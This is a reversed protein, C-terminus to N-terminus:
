SRRGDLKGKKAADILDGFGALEIDILRQERGKCDTKLDLLLNNFINPKNSVGDQWLLMNCMRKVVDKWCIAHMVVMPWSYTTKDIVLCMIKAKKRSCNPRTRRRDEKVSYGIHKAMRAALDRWFEEEKRSMKKVM